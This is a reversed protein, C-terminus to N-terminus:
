WPLNDSEVESPRMEKLALTPERQIEFAVHLKIGKDSKAIIFLVEQKDKQKAIDGWKYNKKYEEIEQKDKAVVRQMWAESVVAWFQPQLVSILKNVFLLPSKNEVLPLETIVYKGEKLIFITPQINKELMLKDVAATKIEAFFKEFTILDKQKNDM